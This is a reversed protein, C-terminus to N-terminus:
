CDRKHVKMLDKFAEQAAEKTAQMDADMNLNTSIIKEASYHGQMKNSEAMAQIAVAVKRTDLEQSRDDPIFDDLVRKIKYIKYNYDLSEKRQKQMAQYEIWTVCKRKALIQEVTSVSKGAARVTASLNRDTDVYVQCIRKEEDSLRGTNVKIM